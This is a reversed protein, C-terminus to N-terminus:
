EDKMFAMASLLAWGSAAKVASQCSVRSITPTFSNVIMAWSPPLPTALRMKELM